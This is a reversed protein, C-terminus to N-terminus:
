VRGSGNMQGLDHSRKLDRTDGHEYSKHDFNPFQAIRKDLLKITDAYAKSPVSEPDTILSAPDMLVPLPAPQRRLDEIFYDTEKMINPHQVPQMTGDSFRDVLIKRLVREVQEDSPGQWEQRNELQSIREHM